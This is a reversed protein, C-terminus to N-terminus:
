HSSRYAYKLYMEFVNKFAFLWNANKLFIVRIYNSFLKTGRVELKWCGSRCLRTVNNQPLLRVSSDRRITKTSSQKWVNQSSSWILMHNLKTERTFVLYMVSNRLFDLGLEISIRRGQGRWSNLLYRPCKVIKLAQRLM